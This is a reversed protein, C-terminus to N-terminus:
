ISKRITELIEEEAEKGYEYLTFTIKTGDELKLTHFWTDKSIFRYGKHLNSEVSTIKGVKLVTRKFVMKGNNDAGRPLVIENDDITLWRSKEAFLCAFLLTSMFGGAMTLGIQLGANSSNTIILVIGIALVATSIIAFIALGKTARPTYKKM